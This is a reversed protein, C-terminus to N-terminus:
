PKACIRHAGMLPKYCAGGAADPVVPPAPRGPSSHWLWGWILLRACASKGYAAGRDDKVLATVKGDASRLPCITRLPANPASAPSGKALILWYGESMSSQAFYDCSSTVDGRQSLFTVRVDHSTEYVTCSTPTPSRSAVGGPTVDGQSQTTAAKTHATTVANQTTVSSSQATLTNSHTTSAGSQTTVVTSQTTVTTAISGCAALCSPTALLAVTLSVRALFHQRIASAAAEYRRMFPESVPIVFLTLTGDLISSCNEALRPCVRSTGGIRV